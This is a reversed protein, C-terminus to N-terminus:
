RRDTVVTEMQAELWKQYMISSSWQGALGQLMIADDRHFM